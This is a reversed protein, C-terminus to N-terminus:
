AGPPTEPPEDDARRSIKELAELFLGIREHEGVTRDTPDGNDYRGTCHRFKLQESDIARAGDRHRHWTERFHFTGLATASLAAIASPIARTVDSLNSAVTLVTALAAAGITVTQFLLWGFHARGAVNTHREFSREAYTLAEKPGEIYPAGVWDHDMMPRYWFRVLRQRVRGLLGIRPIRERQAEPFRETM